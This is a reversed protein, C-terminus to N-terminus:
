LQRGPRAPGAAEAAIRALQAPAVGSGPEARLEARVRLAFRPSFPRLRRPFLQERSRRALRDGADGQSLGLIEGHRRVALRGRRVLVEAPMRKPFYRAYNRRDKANYQTPLSSLEYVESTMITRILHKLDFQHEVLDKALADLLEPNSAPNTVRMDDVAEVLGVGLFHAWMRNAIAQSFFPNDPQVM